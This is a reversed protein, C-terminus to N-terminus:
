ALGRVWRLLELEMADAVEPADDARNHQEASDTRRDYLERVGDRGAHPNVNLLLTWIANRVAWQQAHHGTYAFDRVHTEEGRLIPMLSTGHLAVRRTDLTMDQPFLQTTRRPSTFPLVLDDRIGLADLVTPLLDTPQVLADCVRGGHEGGPLRVIWPIRVLEEYAWPRAKRIIGHEGFPEGHDSLHMILTNDELGLDRVHELLIGVWKDVFTVEGAYLSRVRAVEAETLYGETPGAVPDIIDQGTYGPDRYMSWYPEPPDWPEHPDFYDVWLFLRDKLGKKRVVDDLWRIAEHTVRPAFWEEEVRFHARNRLYQDFRPRWLADTDDGRLRHWRQSEVPLADVIWPDYEQGRVWVVSDFGRGCNYVPKHMHYTDTVLASTFGKDWLIEALLYDGNEFPQWGRFPFGVRGTWWTTRTPMTPLSESYAHAFLIGEAALRDFNPTQVATGHYSVATPHCGVHDARLSDTVVVIVNM